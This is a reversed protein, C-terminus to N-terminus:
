LQQSCTELGEQLIVDSDAPTCLFEVHYPSAPVPHNIDTLLPTFTHMQSIYGHLRHNMCCQLFQKSCSLCKLAQTLFKHADIISALMAFAKVWFM